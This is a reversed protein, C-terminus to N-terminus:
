EKDILGVGVESPRPRIKNPPSLLEAEMRVEDQV